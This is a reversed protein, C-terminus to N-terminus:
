INKTDIVPVNTSTKTVELTEGSRGLWDETIDDWKLSFRTRLSQCFSKSALSDVYSALLIECIVIIFSFAVGIFLIFFLGSLVQLSFIEEDGFFNSCDVKVEGKYWKEYSTALWGTQRYQVIMHNIMDVFPSNIPTGFAWQSHFTDLNTVMAECSEKFHFYLVSSEDIFYYGEDKVKSIAEELDNSNIGKEVLLGYMIKEHTMMMIQMSRDNITGWSYENQMLLDEMNNLRTVSRELTLHATLNATYLSTLIM